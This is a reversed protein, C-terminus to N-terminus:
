YRFVIRARYEEGGPATINSIGTYVLLRRTHRDYVLDINEAFLRLFVSATRIRFHAVARGRRVSERTKKIEFRFFDLKGPVAFNAIVTRGTMLRDWNLKIFYDFGADVVVPAPIRVLRREVAGKAGRQVSLLRRGGRRVVSQRYGNRKDVSRFDPAPPENRYFLIKYVLLSGDPRRYHVTSYVHRGNRFYQRHYETYIWRGTSIDYARASFTVVRANSKTEPARDAGIDEAQMFLLVAAAAIFRFFWM